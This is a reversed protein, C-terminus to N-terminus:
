ILLFIMELYNKKYIKRKKLNKIIKSLLKKAIPNAQIKNSIELYGYTINKYKLLIKYKKSTIDPISIEDEKFTVQHFFENYEYEYKYYSLSQVDIMEYFLEIMELIHESIHSIQQSDKLKEQYEELNM